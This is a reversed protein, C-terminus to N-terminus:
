EAPATPEAQHDEPRVLQQLESRQPLLSSLAAFARHLLDASHTHHLAYDLAAEELNVEFGARLSLEWKHDLVGLYVELSDLETPFYTCLLTIAPLHHREYWDRAADELLIEHNAREGMLWQHRTIHRYFQWAYQRPIHVGLLQQIRRQYWRPRLTEAHDALGPLRLTALNAIGESTAQVARWSVDVLSYGLEHLQGVVREIPSLPRARAADTTDPQSETADPAADPSKDPPGIEANKGLWGHTQRLAAYQRAIYAIDEETIPLPGCEGRSQRIDEGTWLLSEQLAALDEARRGEDLPGPYLQATEADALMARVRHQSLDVLINALSPDGWYIGREHLALLLAVIANWLMQRNHRTFPYRYLLAQPIVRQALRTICYGQDGPLYQTVGAVVGVAVPPGQAVVVGVPELAYIDRRRIEALLSMEKRAMEPATEKIAYRRGDAEIFLVTHRSEGRRVHVAQVGLSPWDEIPAEWPLASLAERDSRPLEYTV